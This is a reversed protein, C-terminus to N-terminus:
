DNRSVYESIAQILADEDLTLDVENGYHERAHPGIQKARRIISHAVTLGELSLGGVGRYETGASSTATTTKDTM